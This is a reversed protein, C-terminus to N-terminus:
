VARDDVPWPWGGQGTKAYGGGPLHVRDLHSHDDEVLLLDYCSGFDKGLLLIQDDSATSLEGVAHRESRLVQCTQAQKETEIRCWDHM